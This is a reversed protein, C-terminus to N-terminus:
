TPSTSRFSSADITWNADKLSPTGPERARGHPPGPLDGMRWVRSMALLVAAGQLRLQRLSVGRAGPRAFPRPGEHAAPGPAARAPRAGARRRDHPRARRADSQATGRRARAEM